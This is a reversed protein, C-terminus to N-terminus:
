VGNPFIFATFFTQAYLAALIVANSYWKNGRRLGWVIPLQLILFIAVVPIAIIGLNGIFFLVSGILLFPWLMFPSDDGIWPWVQFHFVKSAVLLSVSAFLYLLFLRGCGSVVTKTMDPKSSEDAAM